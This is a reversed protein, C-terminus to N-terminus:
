RASKGAASRVALPRSVRPGQLAGRCKPALAKGAGATDGAKPSPGALRAIGRRRRAGGNGLGRAGGPRMSAGFRRGGWCLPSNGHRRVDCRRRAAGVCWGAAIKVAADGSFDDGIEFLAHPWPVPWPVSSAVCSWVVTELIHWDLPQDLGFLRIVRIELFTLAVAYSRIMWQRHYTFQRKLAFYCGIGTTIMLTGSQIMTEITLSRAAGQAEDFYQILAGTASSSSASVYLTGATRHLWTYRRRLGEAFQMPALLLHALVPSATPLLWWKFPDYHHWAPNAAPCFVSTTIGCM